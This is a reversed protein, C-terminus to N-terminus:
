RWQSPGRLMESHRLCKRPRMRPTGRRTAPSIVSLGESLNLSVGSRTENIFEPVWGFKSLVIAIENALNQAEPDGPAVQILLKTGAWREFGAFWEVAKPPGNFGIAGVHRPLLVTQLALNDATLRATDNNLGAIRESSVSTVDALERQAVDAVRYLVYASFASLVLGGVGIIAGGFLLRVGWLDWFEIPSGWLMSRDKTSNVMKTKVEAAASSVVMKKKNLAPLIL